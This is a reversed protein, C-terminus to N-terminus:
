GNGLITITITFINPVFQWTMECGNTSKRSEPISELMVKKLAKGPIEEGNKSMMNQSTLGDM